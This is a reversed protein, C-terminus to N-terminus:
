PANGPAEVVAPGTAPVIPVPTGAAAAQERIGQQVAAWGAIAAAADAASVPNYKDHNAFEDCMFPWSDPTPGYSKLASQAQMMFGLSNTIQQAADPNAEGNPGATIQFRVRNLYGIIMEGGTTLKGDPGYQPQPMSLIHGTILMKVSGVTGDPLPDDYRAAYPPPSAHQYKAPIDAFPNHTPAVIPVAPAAPAGTPAPLSSSATAQPTSGTSGNLATWLESAAADSLTFSRM